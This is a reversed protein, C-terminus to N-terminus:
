ADTSGGSSSGATSAADDGPAGEDPAGGPAPDPDADPDADPNPDAPTAPDAGPDAPVVLDPGPLCGPLAFTATTEGSTATLSGGPGPTPAPEDADGQTGAAFSANTTVGDPGPNSSPDLPALPAVATPVCRVQVRIAGDGGTVMPQLSLVQVQATTTVTVQAGPLPNTVVLGDADISRWGLFVAVTAPLGEYMPGGDVFEFSPTPDVEALSFEFGAVEDDAVFRVESGGMTLQEPVWARVRYRGGAVPALEWRGEEDTTTDVSISGHGTHREVRVTAGEVPGEPGTVLGGLEADGGGLSPIPAAIPPGPDFALRGAERTDPAMPVQYPTPAIVSPEFALDVGSLRISVAAEDTTYADLVVGRNTWMAGLALILIGALVAKVLR